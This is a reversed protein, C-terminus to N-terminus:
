KLYRYLKMEENSTLNFQNLLDKLTLHIQDFSSYDIGTSSQQTIIGQNKSFINEIEQIMSQDDYITASYKLVKIELMLDIILNEIFAIDDIIINDEEKLNKYEDQILDYLNIILSISKKSSNEYDFKLDKLAIEDKLQPYLDYFDIVTDIIYIPGTYDPNHYQGLGMGRDSYPITAGYIPIKLKIEKEIQVRDACKPNNICSILTFKKPVTLQSHILNIKHNSVSTMFDIELQSRLYICYEDLTGNGFKIRPSIKPVTSPILSSLRNVDDIFDQYLLYYKTESQEELVVQLLDNTFYKLIKEVILLLDDRGRKMLSSALSLLLKYLDTLPHSRKPSIFNQYMDFPGYRNANILYSSKEYNVIIALHDTQLLEVGNETEYPIVPDKEKLRRILINDGTLNNHNFQYKGYALRLSYLVQLYIQLFQKATCTEIFVSFTVVQDIYINETLMQHYLGSEGYDSFSVIEGFQDVIPPSAQYGGYIYLFNPNYSRLQNTIYFGTFLEHTLDRDTVKLGFITNDNDGLSATYWYSNDNNSINVHKINRIWNRIRQHQPLGEKRNLYLISAVLCKIISTLTANYFRNDYLQKIRNPSNFLGLQPYLIIQRNRPCDQTPETELREHQKEKKSNYSQQLHTSVYPNSVIDIVQKQIRRYESSM